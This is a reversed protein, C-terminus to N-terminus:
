SDACMRWSGDKKTTLLVAVACLSLSEEIHSKFLVAEVQHRLEELMILHLAVCTTRGMM